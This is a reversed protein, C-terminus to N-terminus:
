CAANVTLYSFGINKQISESLAIKSIDTFRSPLSDQAFLGEAFLLFFLSVPFFPSKGM